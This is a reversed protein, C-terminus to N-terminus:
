KMPDGAERVVRHIYGSSKFGQGLRAIASGQELVQGVQHELPNGLQWSLSSHGLRGSWAGASSVEAPSM